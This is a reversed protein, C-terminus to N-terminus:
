NILKNYNEEDILKNYNEEDILKNNILNCLLRHFMYFTEYGFYMRFRLLEDQFMINIKMIDSKIIAIIYKNNKYKKYLEETIMNIIDDDFVELNFAQLLQVKYLLESNTLDTMYQYTCSFDTQYRNTSIDDDIKFNKNM